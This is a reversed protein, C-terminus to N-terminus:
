SAAGTTECHDHLTDGNADLISRVQFVNRVLAALEAAAKDDRPTLETVALGLGSANAIAKRRRIPPDLWTLQSLDALAAIAAANDPAVGPDALNLVALCRLPDAGRDARAEQAGEILRAIDQVAWVDFSRPQVPVLLADSLILAMRLAASDRGGADIIVDAYKGAQQQVQARLVREDPYHSCALGPTRAAEARMSVAAQATGQRDGDILLVDHGALTRALALQVALTTKGTGGKTSGVTVIM